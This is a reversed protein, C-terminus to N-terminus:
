FFSEPAQYSHHRLKVCNKMKVVSDNENKRDVLRFCREALKSQVQIAVSFPTRTLFILSPFKPRVSPPTLHNWFNDGRYYAGFGIEISTKM